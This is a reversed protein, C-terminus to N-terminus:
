QNSLLDLLNVIIGLQGLEYMKLLQSEVLGTRLSVHGRALMWHTTTVSSWTELIFANPTFTINSIRWLAQGLLLTKLFLNKKFHLDFWLKFVVFWYM